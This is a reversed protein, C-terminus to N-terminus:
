NEWVVILCYQDSLVCPKLDVWFEKLFDGCFKLAKKNLLIEESQSVAQSTDETLCFEIVTLVVVKIQCQNQRLYVKQCVASCVICEEHVLWYGGKHEM